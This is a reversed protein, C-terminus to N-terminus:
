VLLMWPEFQLDEKEQEEIHQIMHSVTDTEDYKKYREWIDLPGGEVTTLDINLKKAVEKIIDPSLFPGMNDFDGIDYVIPNSASYVNIIRDDGSLNIKALSTFYKNIITVAPWEIDSVKKLQGKCVREIERNIFQEIDVIINKILLINDPHNEVRPSKKDRPNFVESLEMMYTMSSFMSYIDLATLIKFMLPFNMVLNSEIEIRYKSVLDHFQQYLLGLIRGKQDKFFIEAFRPGFEHEIRESDGILSRSFDIFSSTLGTFPILHPVGDVIYINYTDVLIPKIFIENKVTINNMHPDGHMVKLQRHLCLMGYIWEFIHKMFIEHDNFINKLSSRHKSKSTPINTDIPTYNPILEEGSAIMSTITSFTKGVNESTLCLALNSLRIESNSLLMSSEIRRSLKFFKDSIPEHKHYNLKDINKLQQTINGAIKSHNFKVHMTDNDFLSPENHQIYFWNSSAPFSPSLYNLVCNSALESIYIERWVPFNIDERRTIEILTLPFLKQGVEFSGYYEGVITDSKLKTYELDTQIKDLKMSNLIESDYPGIIVDPYGANVHGPRNSMAKADCIWAATLLKIPLRSENIARMFERKNKFDDHVYLDIHIDIDEGSIRELIYNEAIEFQKKNSEISDNFYQLSSFRSRYEGDMSKYTPGHCVYNIEFQDKTDPLWMAYIYGYICTVDGRTVALKATLMRAKHFVYDLKLHRFVRILRYANSYTTREYRDHINKRLKTDIIQDMNMSSIEADEWSEDLKQQILNIDIDTNM